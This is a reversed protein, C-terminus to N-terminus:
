GDVSGPPEDAPQGGRLAPVCLALLLLVVFVLLPYALTSTSTGLQSLAQSTWLLAVAGRGSDPALHPM